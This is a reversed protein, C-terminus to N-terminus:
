LLVDRATTGPAIVFVLMGVAALRTFLGLILLLPLAIEALTGAVVVAWHLFGLQDADYGAAEMAKPFIQIYAGDSPYLFGWFGDGLKTGASTWFYGALVAAFVLRALTPLVVPSWSRLRAVARDYRALIM